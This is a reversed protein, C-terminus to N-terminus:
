KGICLRAFIGDLVDEVDIRGGIRALAWSALRLEEALLELADQGSNLARVLAAEADLFAVRHREATILAAGGDFQRAAFDSIEDLLEGIGEGTRASIRHVMNRTSPRSESERAARDAKTRVLMVPEIGSPIAAPTSGCEALWLTLDAEQARLRARDIGEVEIADQADRIGATDVLTVPYGDLDLAVEILDRTTGPNPSVISVDRRSLANMLTSKGVNPPGAIVINLGARLREGRHASELITRIREVARSALRRVDDLTNSETEEADSFDIQAELTFMGEVLLGRISEAERSLAGDAIRFAQKRQAETESAILDAVGEVASLDLKGNEFARLAFEGPNAIRLSEIKGLAKMVSKQVARGGTIHLEAMDEATFSRPALFRLVIARDLVEGTEPDRLKRLSAVRDSLQADSTLARLATECAPGSIRVIAVAARGASTAPAFITERVTCPRSTRGDTYTQLETVTGSRQNRVHMGNM